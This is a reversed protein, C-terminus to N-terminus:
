CSNSSSETSVTFLKQFHSDATSAFSVFTDHRQLDAEGPLKLPTQPVCVGKLILYQGSDGFVLFFFCFRINLHNFSNIM